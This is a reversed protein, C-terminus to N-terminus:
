EMLGRGVKTYKKQDKFDAILKDLIGNIFLKSKPTSYLKSIEIFENLTVKVPISPFHLVESIAMKMLLVDMMAIRDVEWNKTKDGILKENMENNLITRRFLEQVFSKDDEDKYLPLLSFHENADEKFSELTKLVMINVLRLDDVWYISKEEFLYVLSEFEAIHKKYMDIIFDKDSKYSHEDSLYKEYEESAKINNFIKKILEPENQWSLKRNSSEKSLTMNVALQKILRNNLFKTNPVLDNQSPLKKNKAEESSNEAFDRIEILLMLLFAYLDYIKEISNFLEKEGKYVDQNEHQFFAYLAQMVKIRLYRRNLM